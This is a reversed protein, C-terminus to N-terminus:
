KLAEIDMKQPKKCLGEISVTWPSPRLSGANRAPDDKETGFEYFNNYTTVSKLPTLPEGHTSLDSKKYDLKTTAFASEALLSSAALAAGAFGAQKLFDRRNRYHKEQTIESYPIVPETKILM